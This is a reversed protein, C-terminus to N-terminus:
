PGFCRAQGMRDAAILQKVYRVALRRVSNRQVGIYLQPGRSLEFASRQRKRESRLRRLIPRKTQYSFPKVVILVLREVRPNCV